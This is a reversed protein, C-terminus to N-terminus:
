NTFEASLGFLDSVEAIEREKAKKMAWKKELQKVDSSFDPHQVVAGNCRARPCVKGFPPTQLFESL